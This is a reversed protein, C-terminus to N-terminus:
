NLLSPLPSSLLSFIYPYLSTWVFGLIISYKSENMTHDSHFCHNQITNHKSNRQTQTASITVTCVSLIGVKDAAKDAKDAAKDAAAAACLLVAMLM